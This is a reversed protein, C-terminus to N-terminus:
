ASSRHDGTCDTSFIRMETMDMSAPVISQLWDRSQLQEAMGSV